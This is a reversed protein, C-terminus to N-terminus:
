LGLFQMNLAFYIQWQPQGPGNTAVSYQPEVFFNYVTKGRKSVKGIGLGLPVSYAENEFNYAWIPASRLYLGKGLQYFAFPQLAGINVDRRDEEGAFSHQWTLLYGYQFKKSRGDFLVHALGASWKESGLGEDSATPATLQPGLAISVAPNATEFLYAAFVNFDGLGTTTDGQPPTPFSNVPLSARLLWSTKGVTFPQAYRLWFQNASENSETLEGIYYNQVNFAVMNALPNNAQAKLIEAAQERPMERLAEAKQEQSMGQRIEVKEEESTASPNAWGPAVCALLFVFGVFVISLNKKM